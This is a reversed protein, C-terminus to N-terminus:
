RGARGPGQAIMGVIDPYDTTVEYLTAKTGTAKHQHIRCYTAGTEDIVDAEAGCTQCTHTTTM